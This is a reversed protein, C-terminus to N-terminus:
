IVSEITKFVYGDNKLQIIIDKLDVANDKSVTHMLLIAGNHIRNMVQKYSYHDGHFVKQHWDVYALSWFVSAYGNDKLLKLSREDFEGRPPRVYKSMDSGTKEKFANELKKIDNLIEENSSKTFDKHSYTHNGIIHGGEIMEMVLDTASNLYHGTIFFIAKTGTKRLAELIMKTHGNEYGCDFTLYIDKTDPGLYVGGNEKLIAEYKGASPRTNGKNVLGFGYAHGKIGVFLFLGLLVGLFIKKM